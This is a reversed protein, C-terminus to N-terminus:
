EVAWRARLRYRGPKSRRKGKARSPKHEIRVLYGAGANPIYGEYHPANANVKIESISQSSKADIVTALVRSKNSTQVELRIRRMAPDGADIKVWDVAAEDTLNGIHWAGMIVLGAQAPTDNPEQEGQESVPEVRYWITYALQGHDDAKWTKRATQAWRLTVKAPEQEGTVAFDLTASQSQDDLTKAQIVRGSSDLLAAQLGRLDRNNVREIKVRLMKGRFSEKLAFVDVDAPGDLTGRLSSGGRLEGVQSGDNPEAETPGAKPGHSVKLRYADSKSEGAVGGKVVYETVCVVRPKTRTDVYRSVEGQGLGRHNMVSLLSGREDFIRLELDMTPMGSVAISLEEDSQTKPLEFCDQDALSPGRKEGIIGSAQGEVDLVNAQDPADNPESEEGISGANLLGLVWFGAGLFIAVGAAFWVNRWRSARQVRDILDEHDIPDIDHQAVLSASPEQADASDDTLSGKLAFEGKRAQVLAASFEEMTQFRDDPKKKLCKGIIEELAQPIKADPSVSSMKAPAQMLHAKLIDFTNSENGFVQKGTLMRFALAGVAYIDSRGDIEGARIQEPSMYFPTGFIDKQSHITYPDDVDEVKALGFDLIKVFDPHPGDSLLMINEPKLDRHVIGARHAEALSDCMQLLIATARNAPCPGDRNLMNDLPEGELLEMVLYFVEGWRGFDYVMVTHPSSLRSIARAERTFRSILQKKSLLNEHLLKIAMQKRLHIQEVCYVAGMGGRGILSKVLYREDVLKGIYASQDSNGSVTIDELSSLRTQAEHDIAGAPTQTKPATQRLSSNSTTAPTAVRSPTAAESDDAESQAHYFLTADRKTPLVPPQSAENPDSPVVGIVTQPFSSEAINATITPPLEVQ